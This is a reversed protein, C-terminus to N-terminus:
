SLSYKLLMAELKKREVPKSLYDDMGAALCEERDGCVASATLAVIAPKRAPATKARIRRTAEMGDMEPMQCDMLIIGYSQEDVMRLAELGNTALDHPYGTRKLLGSVIIRNTLNDEVVLIRPKEDPAAVGSLVNNHNGLGTQPEASVVTLRLV